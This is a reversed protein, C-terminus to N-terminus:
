AWATPPAGAAKRRSYPPGAPSRRRCAACDPLSRSPPTLEPGAGPGSRRFDGWGSERGVGCFVSRHPPCGVGARCFLKAPPRKARGANKARDRLLLARRLLANSRSSFKHASCRRIGGGALPKTSEEQPTGARASPYFRRLCDACPNCSEGAPRCLRCNQVSPKPM